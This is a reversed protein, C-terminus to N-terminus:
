SHFCDTSIYEEESVEVYRKWINAGSSIKGEEALENLIIPLSYDKDSTTILREIARKFTINVKESDRESRPAIHGCLPCEWLDSVGRDEVPMRAKTLEAKCEPCYPPDEVFIRSISGDDNLTAQCRWVKEDWTVCGPIKEPLRLPVTSEKSQLSRSKMLWGLAVGTILIFFPRLITFNSIIFEIFITAGSKLYSLIEFIAAIAMIAIAVKRWMKM